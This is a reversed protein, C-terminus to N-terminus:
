PIISKILNRFELSTITNDVQKSDRLQKAIQYTAIALHYDDKEFLGLHYQKKNIMIKVQWKQTQKHWYVGKCDVNWANEITNSERLNSISNNLKNQDKHDITNVVIRHQYYYIFQHVLIQKQKKDFNTPMKIIKYGIKKHIYGVEIGDPNYVKGADVDCTYGNDILWQCRELRNKLIKNM